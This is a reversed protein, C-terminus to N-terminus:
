EPLPVPCANSITVVLVVEGHAAADAFTDRLSSCVVDLDGAVVTSMPGEWVDLGAEQFRSIAQAIAPGLHAERLPYLSVQATVNPM